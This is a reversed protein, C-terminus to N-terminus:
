SRHDDIHIARRVEAQERNAGHAVYGCTCPARWPQPNRNRGSEIIRRVRGAVAHGNVEYM